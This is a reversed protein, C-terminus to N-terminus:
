ALWINIICLTKKQRTLVSGWNFFIWILINLDLRNCITTHLRRDEYIDKKLHPIGPRRTIYERVFISLNIFSAFITSLLCCSKSSKIGLIMVLVLNQFNSKIDSENRKNQYRVNSILTMHGWISSMFTLRTLWPFYGFDLLTVGRKLPTMDLFLQSITRLWCLWVYIICWKSALSFARM